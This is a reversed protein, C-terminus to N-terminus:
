DNSMQKRPMDCLQLKEQEQSAIRNPLGDDVSEAEEDKEKDALILRVRRRPPLQLLM